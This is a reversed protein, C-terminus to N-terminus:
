EFRLSVEFSLVPAQGVQDLLSGGNMSSVGWAARDDYDTDLLSLPRYLRRDFSAAWQATLARPSGQLDTTSAIRITLGEAAAAAYNEEIWKSFGRVAITTAGAPTSTNPPGGSFNLAGFIGGFYGRQNTVFGAVFVVSMQGQAEVHVNITWYGSRNYEVLAHTCTLSPSTLPLLPPVFAVVNDDITRRLGVGGNGLPRVLFPQELFAQRGNLPALATQLRRLRSAARKVPDM